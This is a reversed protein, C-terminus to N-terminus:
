SRLGRLRAVGAMGLLAVAFGAAVSGLAYGAALWGHGDRGLRLVELVFTSYTTFGGLLGTGLAYRLAQRRAPLGVADGDSRTLRPLLAELLVGLLFAGAVNIGATQWPISGPEAPAMREILDRLATGVAGGAVVFGLLRPQLHPPPATM